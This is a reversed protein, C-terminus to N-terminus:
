SQVEIPEVCCVVSGGCIDCDSELERATAISMEVPYPVIKTPDAPWYIGRSEHGCNTCHADMVRVMGFESM